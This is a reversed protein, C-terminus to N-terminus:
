YLRMKVLRRIAKKTSCLIVGQTLCARLETKVCILRLVILSPYHRKPVLMAAPLTNFEVRPVTAGPSQRLVHGLRLGAMSLALLRFCFM